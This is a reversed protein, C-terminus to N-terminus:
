PKSNEREKAAKYIADRNEETMPVDKRVSVKGSTPSQVTLTVKDGPSHGMRTLLEVLDEEFRKSWKDPYTKQSFAVIKSAPINDLLILKFWEEGLKVEPQSVKWRVAQFPSKKAFEDRVRTEDHSSADQLVDNRSTEQSSGELQQRIRQWIRLAAFEAKDRDGDNSTVAIVTKNEPIFVVLAYWMTNAGNHWYQVYSSYKDPEDKIWGCAYRSLPPTHLLKYTEKSLLKGEGSAGRLHETAFTCLDGLTMHITAAPGIIQTNDATDDAAVKGRLLNRHGRPQEINHDSSKPPGFGAGALKLPEFVERQMLEEWTLGTKQEAMAAAIAYGVNSYVSEEGPPYEPKVAIMELVADRRAVTSERGSEPKLRMVHRPFNAPAGATDTLLQILTVRKWDDDIVADPYYEGVTDTWKMKGAEVLRAIMTATIPKSAGGLHWRDGLELPVSSGVMREGHAVEAEFKGDVMVMAALGVLEKKKRFDVVLSALTDGGPGSVQPAQDYDSTSATGTTLAIATLVVACFLSIISWRRLLRPPKLSTEAQQATTEDGLSNLLQLLEQRRPELDSNVAHQNLWEIFYYLVVLGGCMFVGGLIDDWNEARLWTSHLFFALISITFPMLYWWFVNRLLWIQHEVQSLSNKVCVLLPDGPQSPKQPHRKRDVFFFGVIWVLVPVTLYWTWPLSSTAGKYLWYPFLLLAIVVEIMDRRFITAQFSSQNRQVEKLLLDGDVTVRTQTSQAQWAQQFSDLDRQEGSNRRDEPNNHSDPNM